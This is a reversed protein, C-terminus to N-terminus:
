ILWRLVILMAAFSLVAMTLFIKTDTPIQALFEIARWRSEILRSM